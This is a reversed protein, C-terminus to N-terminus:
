RIKLGGWDAYALKLSGVGDHDLTLVNSAWDTATDYTSGEVYTPKTTRVHTSYSGGGSGFNLTLTTGTVSGSVLPCNGGILYNGVKALAITQNASVGSVTSGDDVGYSPLGWPFAGTSSLDINAWGSSNTVGTVGGFSVTGGNIAAGDSAYLLRVYLIQTVLSASQASANLKDAVISETGMLDGDSYDVDAMNVAAHYTYTNAISPMTFTIQGAGNVITSDTGKVTHTSDHVAISTFESDPPYYASPTSSGPGDAYRVTVDLIATGGAGVRDPTKTSTCEISNISLTTVTGFYDSQTITDNGGYADAIFASLDIDSEETAGWKPKFGITLNLNDGSRSSLCSASVIEYETSGSVQTFTDSTQNYKFQARSSTGQMLDVLVYTVNAYGSSDHGDFDIMYTTRQAFAVSVDLNSISIQDVVAAGVVAIDVNGVLDGDPYEADVLNVYAHYTYTGAVSPVAFSISGVGNVITLDTGKVTHASDHIVISAFEADSPYYASPATSFPTDAYRVDVTITDTQGVGITYSSPIITNIILTKVVDCYNSQTVTDNEGASDFIIARLEVGSEETAGWKPTFGITLNLNNGSRIASCSAGVMAYASTGSVQSFADATQNYKFQARSSAGQMIDILVHSVDGYGDPDHGDYELTYTRMQAFLTMDDLNSITLGDNVPAANYDGSTPLHDFITGDEDEWHHTGEGHGNYFIMSSQTIVKSDIEGWSSGSGSFVRMNNASTDAGDFALATWNGPSYETDYALAVMPYSCWYDVPNWVDYHTSTWSGTKEGTRYKIDYEALEWHYPSYVLNIASYFFAYTGTSVDFDGASYAFPATFTEISGVTKDSDMYAVNVTMGGQSGQNMVLLAHIDDVGETWMVTADGCYGYAAPNELQSWSWAGNYDEVSLIKDYSDIFWLKGLHSESAVM